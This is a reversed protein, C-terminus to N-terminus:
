SCGMKIIKDKKIKIPFLFKLYYKKKIKEWFILFFFIILLFDVSKNNKM